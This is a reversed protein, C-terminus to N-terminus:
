TCADTLFQFLHAEPDSLRYKSVLQQELESISEEMTNIVAAFGPLETQWDSAVEIEDKLGLFKESVSSAVTRASKSM